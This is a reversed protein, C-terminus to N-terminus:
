RDNADTVGVRSRPLGRIVVFGRGDTLERRWGAITAALTPLSVEARRLTAVTLGRARTREVSRRAFAGAGDRAKGPPSQSRRRGIAEAM